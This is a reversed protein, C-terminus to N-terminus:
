RQGQKTRTSKPLLQMLGESGETATSMSDDMYVEQVANCVDARCSLLSKIKSM